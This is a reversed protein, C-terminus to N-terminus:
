CPHTQRTHTHTHTHTYAHMYHCLVLEICPSEQTGTLGISPQPAHSVILTTNFAMFGFNGDTLGFMTM